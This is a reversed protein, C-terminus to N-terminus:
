LSPSRPLLWSNPFALVSNQRWNNPLIKTIPRKLILQIASLYQSKMTSINKLTWDKPHLNNQIAANEAPLGFADWGMPHLVNFNNLRKFNAIVDGLTYNRVHGMHINGSPYPFMELCYFKKNTNKKTKFIKKSEFFSQWKKEIPLPNYNDM